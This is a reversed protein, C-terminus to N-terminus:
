IVGIESLIERSMESGFEATLDAELDVSDDNLGVHYFADVDHDDIDDYMAYVSEDTIYITAPRNDHTITFM